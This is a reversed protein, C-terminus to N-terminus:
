PIHPIPDELSEWVQARLHSSGFAHKQRATSTTPAQGSRRLEKEVDLFDNPLDISRVLSAVDPDVRIQARPDNPYLATDDSGDNLSLVWIHGAARLDQFM